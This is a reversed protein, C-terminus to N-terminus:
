RSAPTPRPPREIGGARRRPRRTADSARGPLPGAAGLAVFATTDCWPDGTATPPSTAPADPAPARRSCTPGSCPLDAPEPAESADVERADALVDLGAGHSMEARQAASLVFHGDCGAARASAPAVADVALLALVAGALAVASRRLSSLRM